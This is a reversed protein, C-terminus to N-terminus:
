KIRDLPYSELISKPSIVILGRSDDTTDVLEADVNVVAAELAAQVHLKAFEIMLDYVEQYDAEALITPLDKEIWAFEEATLIDM